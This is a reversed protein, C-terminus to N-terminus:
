GRGARSAAARDRPGAHGGTRRARQPARADRCTGPRRCSPSSSRRWRAHATTPAPPSITARPRFSAVSEDRLRRVADVHDGARRARGRRDARRPRPRHRPRRASARPSRLTRGTWLAARSAARAGGSGRRARGPARPSPSPEAACGARLAGVRAASALVAGARGRHRGRRRACGAGAGAGRGALRGRAARM